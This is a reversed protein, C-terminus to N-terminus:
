LDVNQDDLSLDRYTLDERATFGLRQWFANGGENRAFAVLAIKRIGEARMAAIMREALTRGVGDGRRDPRVCTHYVYGRRGDNGALLVGIMAGDADEAVFCTRPNRALFRRISAEDDDLARLGVGPSHAWLAFVAAYDDPTM